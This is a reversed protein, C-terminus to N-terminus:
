FFDFDDFIKKCMLIEQDILLDTTQLKWSGRWATKACSM